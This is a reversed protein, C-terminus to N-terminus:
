YSWFERELKSYMEDSPVKDSGGRGRAPTKM